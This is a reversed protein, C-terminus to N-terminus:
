ALVTLAHPLISIDFHTGLLEEGDVQCPVQTEFDLQATTCRCLKLMKSSIHKGNRAKAFLMLAHPLTPVSINYCLDLKGDAPSADPCINFGGGYSPGLQVAFMMTPLKLPAQDDIRAQCAWQRAPSSFVRVGSSIFLASGRLSHTKQTRVRTTDLAIAADLGFSLTQMFYVGNVVGLDFRQARTKNVIHELAQVPDDIPANITRAFDNGTGIPIVGLTPRKDQPRKMIGNVVEHIVGDGGLAIITDVDLATRALETAHGPAQTYLTKTSKFERTHSSLYEQAIRAGRAGNGSDSAPNAILLIRGLATKSM